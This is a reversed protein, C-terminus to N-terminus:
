RKKMITSAETERFFIIGDFSDILKSKSYNRLKNSEPYYRAGIARHYLETNLFDSIVENTKVSNFDLIFNPYKCDKFVADTSKKISVDPIDNIVWKREQGNYTTNKGNYFGFGFSYFNNGYQQKLYYGTPKQEKKNNNNAIHENHAWFITKKSNEHNFIWEINEAMFKDRLRVKESRNSFLMEVFQGLIAKEQKTIIYVDDMKNGFSELISDLESIAKRVLEEDDKSYKEIYKREIIWNLGKEVTATSKNNQKIYDKLKKATLVENIIECGYFKIKNGYDQTSNYEKIWDILNIFEETMWVGYGVGFLADNLEEKGYLVYDNMIQSGTFDGEIIFVKYDAQTVLFKILRHKYDFFEKTGHTAEGLGIIKKQKLTPLLLKIDDLSNDPSITEVEIINKNLEKILDAQGYSL